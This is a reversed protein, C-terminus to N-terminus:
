IEDLNKVFRKYNTKSTYLIAVNQAETLLVLKQDYGFDIEEINQALERRSVVDYFLNDILVSDKYIKITHNEFVIEDFLIRSKKSVPHVTYNAVYNFKYTKNIYCSGFLFLCCFLFLRM